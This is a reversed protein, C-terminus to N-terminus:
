PALLVPRPGGQDKSLKLKVLIVLTSDGCREPQDVGNGLQRPVLVIPAPARTTM